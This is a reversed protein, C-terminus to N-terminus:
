MTGGGFLCSLRESTLVETRPKRRFRGGEALRDGLTMRENVVDGYALDIRAISLRM